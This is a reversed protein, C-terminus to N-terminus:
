PHRPVAPDVHTASRNPPPSGIQDEAALRAEAAAMMAQFRPDNRLPDFDPDVKAHNLLSMSIKAFVPGLLELAAEPGKRDRLLGCAFNDRMHINDPDILLARNIWEKARESEGLDALAGVGWGTVAGNNQDQALVREARALTIEAARRNAKSNGLAAYCTMLMAPSAVDTEMLATAKEWYRIADELRHQRFSLLGASRNVEFSEPDLRLGSAIEASAEDHRGSEAFIRAKVAHAEALNADLALAREAAALGDEGKGGHIYRVIMQGLAMLAWAQAYNPDIETVRHCIRIAAEVRRPDSEGGTVYNQRAMLYLNYAEVSETGRQEIAKKEEPLLKLKLANVIAESIEDQLAFIDSLDRDYREAWVHDNTAGDILQANIRVRGGSKRVSGELVHSVKLERAVKPLDVHKGKYMFASNRSIVALASVKSLDTIIDESIGDSFYEQEADGSMNAFPLVCISLKRLQDAKDEGAKRRGDAARVSFVHVPREINKMTHEGMDEFACPAKGEVQDRVVRSLAVGGVPALAQLRAAVNVGEGYIDDGEVIVEGLNIGIRYRIRRAESTETGANETAEQIALACNVAAIVSSFEVLAGDGMLKFVRGGHSAVHPDFVTSRNAKLREVTGTEDAEMLGSYGVVDASLIATLKRQMIGLLPACRVMPETM